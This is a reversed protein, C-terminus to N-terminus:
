FRDANKTTRNLIDKQIIELLKEPEEFCPSHASNQFTYFGKAPAEIKEFLQKALTYSTQFDFKGQLVYFPIELKSVTKELDLQFLVPFLCQASFASGRIFNIKEKWGYGKFSFIDKAM